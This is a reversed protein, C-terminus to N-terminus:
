DDTPKKTEQKKKALAEAQKKEEISKLVSDPLKMKASHKLLLINSVIIGLVFAIVLFLMWGNM